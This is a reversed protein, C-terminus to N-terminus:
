VKYHPYDSMSFNGNFDAHTNHCINIVTDIAGRLCPETWGADVSFSEGALYLGSIPSTKRNYELLKMAASYCGARYLKACGLSDPETIWRRVEAAHIDLYPSIKQAINSSRLLIRDLEDICMKVVKDESFSALKTADDEWTYSLLICPTKYDGIGYEYAYVDHVFSDTVLIQPIRNNVDTFFSKDIPCYIKQSTEWHATKYARVIDLPLENNSFNEFRMEVEMLWSPVTVIVSDFLETRSVNDFHVTFGSHNKIVRRVKTSTHLNSKNPQLCLDYPSTQTNELPLFLMCEDLSRIGRYKPSLFPAGGSDPVTTRDVYPGPNFSGNNNYRGPILQLKSGFGFIATRIPYLTCVDYFAGWSGDGFGISYFINSEDETLGLGGFDGPNSSDWQDIAELQVFQRFPIDKYREVIADWIDEWESSAYEVSVVDIMLKEFHKWKNFVDQIRNTPPPTNGNANDWILMKPNNGGDVLGEELYIGTSKVWPTGPNPFEETYLKFISAYYALLSEGDLPSEDDANFFPMRMAGMEFPAYECNNSNNNISTITDHRGGIQHRAEYIHVNNFGCRNLERLITLGTIGAGIICIKHNPDRATAIGGTQSVLKRYNFSLDPPSPYRGSWESARDLARTLKLSTAKQAPYDYSSGITM